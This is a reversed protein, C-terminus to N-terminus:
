RHLAAHLRLAVGLEERRAALPRGLRQEITAVRYGIPAGEYAHRDDLLEAFQDHQDKDGVADVVALRAVAHDEACDDPGAEGRELARAVRKLRHEVVEVRPRHLVDELRLRKAGDKRREAVDGPGREKAARQERRCMVAGAEVDRAPEDESREAHHAQV